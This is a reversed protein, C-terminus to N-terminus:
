SPILCILVSLLVVFEGPHDIDMADFDFFEMSRAFTLPFTPPPIFRRSSSSAFGQQGWLFFRGNGDGVCFLIVDIGETGPMYQFM